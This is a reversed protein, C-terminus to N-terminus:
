PGLAPGLISLGVALTGGLLLAILALALYRKVDVRVRAQGM